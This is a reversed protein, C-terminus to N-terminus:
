CQSMLCELTCTFRKKKVCAPNADNHSFPYVNRVLLDRYTRHLGGRMRYLVSSARSRITHGEIYTLNPSRPRRAKQLERRAVLFLVRGPNLSGAPANAVLGRGLVTKGFTERSQHRTGSQHKATTARCKTGQMDAITQLFRCHNTYWHCSIQLRGSGLELKSNQHSLWTYSASPSAFKPVFSPQVASPSRVVTPPYLSLRRTLPLRFSTIVVVPM